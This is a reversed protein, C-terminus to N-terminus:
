REFSPGRSRGRDLYLGPREIQLRFRPHSQERSRLVDVLNSPVRWTGDPLRAVLNYRALRELRRQNVEIVGRPLGM